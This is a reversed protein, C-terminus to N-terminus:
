DKFSVLAFKKQQVQNCLEEGEDDNLTNLIKKYVGKEYFVVTRKLQQKVESIIFYGNIL